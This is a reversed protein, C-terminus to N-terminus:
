PSEPDLVIVVVNVFPCDCDTLRDHVLSRGESAEHEKLGADPKGGKELMSVILADAKVGEPQDVIVTVPTPPPTELVVVNVKTTL